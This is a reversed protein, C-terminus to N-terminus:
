TTESVQADQSQSILGARRGLKEALDAAELRGDLIKTTPWHDIDLGSLAVFEELDPAYLQALDAIDAGTPPQGTHNDPTANVRM